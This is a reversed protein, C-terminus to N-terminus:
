WPWLGPRQDLPIRRDDRRRIWTSQREDHIVPAAALNPIHVSVTKEIEGGANRDSGGTVAMRFDDLGNLILGLFEQMNRRIIIVFWPDFQSFFEVADSRKVFGSNGEHTIGPGFGHFGGDLQGAVVGSLGVKDTKGAREVPPCHTRYGKSGTFRGIVAAEIRQHVTDNM